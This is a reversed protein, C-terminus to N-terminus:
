TSPILITCFAAMLNKTFNFFVAVSVNSRMGPIDEHLSLEGGGGCRLKPVVPKYVSLTMFYVVCFSVGGSQLESCTIQTNM